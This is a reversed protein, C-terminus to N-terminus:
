RRILNAVVEFTINRADGGGSDNNVLVYNVLDGEDFSIIDTSNTKPGTEASDYSVLLATDVSNIRLVLDNGNQNSANQSVFAAMKSMKGNFQMPMQVDAETTSEHGGFMSLFTSSAKPVVVSDGASGAMVLTQTPNFLTM